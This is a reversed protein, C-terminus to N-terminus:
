FYILYCANECDNCGYINRFIYCDKKGFGLIFEPEIMIEQRKKNNLYIIRKYGNYKSNFYLRVRFNCPYNKLLKYCPCKNYYFRYNLPRERQGGKTRYSKPYGVINEGYVDYLLGNPMSVLVIGIPGRDLNNQIIIEPKEYIIQVFYTLAYKRIIKYGKKIEYYTSIKPQFSEKSGYTKRMPYSTQADGVEVLGGLDRINDIYATKIDINVYANETEFFLNSGIYITVPHWESFEESIVKWFIREAGIGLDTLRKTETHFYNKWYHYIDFRSAFREVIYSLKKRITNDIIRLYNYELKEIETKEDNISM